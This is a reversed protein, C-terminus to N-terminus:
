HELRNGERHSEGRLVIVVASKPVYAPRSANWEEEALADLHVHGRYVSRIRQMLVASLNHGTLTGMARVIERLDSPLSLFILKAHLDVDFQDIWNRLRRRAPDDFIQPTVDTAASSM